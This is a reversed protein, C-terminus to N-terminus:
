MSCKLFALFFDGANFFLAVFNRLPLLAFFPVGRGVILLKGKFLGGDEAALV